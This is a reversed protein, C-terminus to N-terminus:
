RDVWRVVEFAEAYRSRIQMGRTIAWSRIFEASAYPRDSQSRYCAIAALKREVHEEQLFVFGSTTFTLNNWPVEYGLMTTHKFARFGEYAIVQHDQHTDNTSPLLLRDPRIDRQLRIMDDLIAQRHTGFQRVPYNLVTLRDEQMGLARVADRIEQRLLDRPAGDPLSAEAASFAVQFVDKGEAVCRAITGGCGFEADDTHPALVLIRETM